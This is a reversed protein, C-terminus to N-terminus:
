PTGHLNTQLLYDLIPVLQRVADLYSMNVGTENDPAAMCTGVVAYGNKMVVLAMYFTDMTDSIPIVGLADLLEKGTLHTRSAIHAEVDALTVHASPPISDSM